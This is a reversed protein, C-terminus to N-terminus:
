RLRELNMVVTYQSEKAFPRFEEGGGEFFKTFYEVFQLRATHIFGGLANIVLNFLHGGILIAVM